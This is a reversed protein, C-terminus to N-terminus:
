GPWGADQIHLEVRRCGTSAKRGWILKEFVAQAIGARSVNYWRGGALVIFASRYIMREEKSHGVEATNQEIM